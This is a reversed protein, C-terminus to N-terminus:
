GEGGGVCVRVNVVQLLFPPGEPLLSLLKQQLEFWGITRNLNRGKSDPSGGGTSVSGNTKGDTGPEGKGDTGSSTKGDAGSPTKGDNGSGVAAPTPIVNGAGALFILIKFGAEKYFFRM